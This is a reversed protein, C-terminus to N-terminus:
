QTLVLVIDLNPGAEGEEHLVADGALLADVREPTATSAGYNDSPASTGRNVRRMHSPTPARGPRRASGALSKDRGLAAAGAQTSGSAAAARHRRCHGRPCHCHCHQWQTPALVTLTLAIGHEGSVNRCQTSLEDRRASREAGSDAM